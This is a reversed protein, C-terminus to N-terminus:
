AKADCKQNLINDVRQAMVRFIPNFMMEDDYKKLLHLISTRERNIYKAISTLKMKHQHCQYAFLMRAFVVDRKRSKTTYENFKMGTVEHIANQIRLLYEHSHAVKTEFWVAKGMRMAIDYEIGAGVSDTWNDLMYIAECDLLMEIDRVMHENWSHEKSLGNDLPNIVEFDLNKLLNKANNFKEEVETFPLGTIRGSIYIKMKNRITPKQIISNTM